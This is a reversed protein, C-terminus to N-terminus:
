EDGFSFKITKDEKVDAEVKNVYLGNLKSLQEYAALASKRDNHALADEALAELRGVQLDRYKEVVEENDNIMSNFADKYYEYVRQTTVGWRACLEEVIRRRSLGQGILDLIVQRRLMVDADGWVTSYAKGKRGRIQGRGGKAANQNIITRIHNDVEDPTMFRFVGEKSM